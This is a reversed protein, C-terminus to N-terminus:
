NKALWAFIKRTHGDGILAAMKAIKKKQEESLADYKAQTLVLPGELEMHDREYRESLLAKIRRIRYDTADLLLGYHLPNQEDHPVDLDGVLPSYDEEDNDIM